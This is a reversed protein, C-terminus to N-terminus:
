EDEDNGKKKPQVPIYSTGRPITKAPKAVQGSKLVLLFCMSNPINVDKGKDDKVVYGGGDDNKFKLHYDAGITFAGEAPRKSCKM